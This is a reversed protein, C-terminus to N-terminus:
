GANVAQLAESEFPKTMHTALRHDDGERPSYLPRHM